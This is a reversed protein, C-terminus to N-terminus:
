VESQEVIRFKDNFQEDGKFVARYKKGNMDLYHMQVELKKLYEGELKGRLLKTKSFHLGETYRDKAIAPISTLKEELMEYKVISEVNVAVGNGDNALIFGTRLANLQLRLYPRIGTILQKDAIERQKFNENFTKFLYFLTAALIGLNLVEISIKWGVPIDQVNNAIDRLVDLFQEEM